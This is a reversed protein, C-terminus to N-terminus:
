PFGYIKSTAYHPDDKAMFSRITVLHLAAYIPACLNEDGSLSAGSKMSFCDSSFKMVREWSQGHSRDIGMFEASEGIVTSPNKDQCLGARRSHVLSGGGRRMQEPIKSKFNSGKCIIYDFKLKM